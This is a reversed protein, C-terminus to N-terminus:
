NPASLNETIPDVFLISEKRKLMCVLGHFTCNEMFKIDGRSDIRECDTSVFLGKISKDLHM